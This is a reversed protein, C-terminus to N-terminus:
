TTFCKLWSPCLFDPAKLAFFDRCFCLHVIIECSAWPLLELTDCTAGLQSLLKALDGRSCQGDRFSASTARADTVRLSGVRRSACIASASAHLQQFQGLLKQKLLDAPLCQTRKLILYSKHNTGTVRHRHKLIIDLFNNQM